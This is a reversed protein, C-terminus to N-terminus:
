SAPGGEAEEDAQLWKAYLSAGVGTSLLAAMLNADGARVRAIFEDLPYGHHTAVKGLIQEFQTFLPTADSATLQYPTGYLNGEQKITEIIGSWVKASYDAPTQGKARGHAQMVAKMIPYQEDSIKGPVTNLYIGETPDEGLKGHHTDATVPDPEGMLAGQMDGTKFPAVKEGRLARELAAVRVSEMPMQIPGSKGYHQGGEMRWGPQILPEGRIVRQLYVSAQRINEHVSTRPSTAALFGAAQKMLDPGYVHEIISGHLKWWAQGGQTKLWEDGRQAQEHYRREYIPGEIFSRWNKVNTFGGGARLHAPIGADATYVAKQAGAERTAQNPDLALPGEGTKTAQRIQVALNPAPKGKVMTDDAFRKPVDLYVLETGLPYQASPDGSAQRLKEAGADDGAARLAKGAETDSATDVWGGLYREAKRLEGQMRAVYDKIHQQTFQAKPVVMVNKTDYNPYLGSFTGTSPVVGTKLDVSYGGGLIAKHITAARTTAKVGLRVPGAAAKGSVAKGSPGLIVPAEVADRLSQGSPAVLGTEIPVEPPEGAPLTVKPRAALRERRERGTDNATAAARRGKFLEPFAEGLPVARPIAFKASPSTISILTEPTAGSKVLAELTSMTRDFAEHEEGWGVHRISIEGAPADPTPAALIGRVTEDFARGSIGHKALLEAHTGRTGGSVTFTDSQPTFGFLRTRSGQVQRLDFAGPKLQADGATLPAGTATERAAEPARVQERSFVQYEDHNVRDGRFIVGDHEPTLAKLAERKADGFSLGKKQGRKIADTIDLPNRMSLHAALVRGAPTKIGAKPPRTYGSAARPDTTFSLGAAGSRPRVGERGPDLDAVNIDRSTSGHHFVVPQGDAHLIGTEPHPVPPGAKAKGGKAMLVAPLAAAGGLRVWQALKERDAPDPLIAAVLPDDVLGEAGLALAPGVLADMGGAKLGAVLRRGVRGAAPIAGGPRTGAAGLATQLAGGAFQLPNGQEVGEVMGEAGQLATAGGILRGAGEVVRGARSATGLLPRAVSTGVSAIDLPSTFQALTGLVKETRPWGPLSPGELLPQSVKDVLSAGGRLMERLERGSFGARQLEARREARGPQAQNAAEEGELLDHADPTLRSGPVLPDVGPVGIDLTDIGPQVGAENDDDEDGDELPEPIESADRQPATVGPELAYGGLIRRMQEDTEDDLLDAGQAAFDPGARGEKRRQLYGEARALAHRLVTTNGRRLADAIKLKVKAHLLNWNPSKILRTAYWALAGATLSGLADGASTEGDGRHTGFGVGATAAIGALPGKTQGTRRTPTAAVVDAVNQHYSFARNEPVLEPAKAAMREALVGRGIKISGRKSADSLNDALFGTGNGGKVINDWTQRIERLTDLSVEDGNQAIQDILTQLNAHGQADDILWRGNDAKHMFHRQQARELKRLIPRTNIRSPHVDLAVDELGLGGSVMARRSAPVVGQQAAQDFIQRVGTHMMLQNLRANERGVEHLADIVMEHARQLTNLNTSRPNLGRLAGVVTELNERTQPALEVGQKLLLNAARQLSGTTKRLNASQSPQRRLDFGAELRQGAADAERQAQKQVRELNTWTPAERTMRQWNREVFRKNPRTSPSFAQGAHQKASQEASTALSERTRALLGGPKSGMSPPFLAGLATGAAAGTIPDGEQAAGLVAGMTGERAANIVVNGLRPHTVLFRAAKPAIRALSMIVEARSVPNPAMASAVDLVTGIQQQRPNQYQLEEEFAGFEPPPKAEGTPLTAEPVPQLNENDADVLAKEDLTFRAAPDDAEPALAGAAARRSGPTRALAAKRKREEAEALIRKLYEDQASPAAEVAEQAPDPIGFAARSVEPGFLADPIYGVPTHEYVSRGIGQLAQGTWRKGTEGLDALFGYGGMSGSKGVSTTGSRVEAPTAVVGAIEDFSLLGSSKDSM